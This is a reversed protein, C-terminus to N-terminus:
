MLPHFLVEGKTNFEITPAPFKVINLLGLFAKMTRSRTKIKSFDVDLSLFFRRYRIIESRDHFAGSEDYWTNGYGGYMGGAGYGLAVNLWKVHQQRKNFSAPNISLWYNMANYDKLFKRPLTTGFLQDARAQLEGEPYLQYHPLIKLRIRQEKWILEQSTMLAAGTFNAAVDSLSAGWEASLGDFVEITNQLMFATLGAYIAAPKQKVGTWRFIHMIYFAELYATTLHGCKDIQLWERSDDFFHFSSHAYDAYWLNNLGVLAASYAVVGTGAFLTIRQKNLTPSPILWAPTDKLVVPLSDSQAELTHIGSVFFIIISGLFVKELLPM